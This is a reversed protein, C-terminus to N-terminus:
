QQAFTGNAACFAAGMVGAKNGLTAPLIPTNHRACYLELFKEWWLSRLEIVGGGIVIASPHYREILIDIVALMDSFFDNVAQQCKPSKCEFVACLDDQGSSKRLATASVYQEACGYKGCVCPRGNEHLCVHGMRTDVFTDQNLTRSTMWSVGLGTGLTLMMVSPYEQAVGMFAEAVLAGVADNIVVVRRGMRKSLEKSLELGTFGKLVETAFTVKGTDWDITGASAVGIYEVTSIDFQRIAREINGCVVDPGSRGQTPLSYSDIIRYSKPDAPNSVDILASKIGTGGVDVGIMLM